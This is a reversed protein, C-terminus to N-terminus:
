LTRRERIRPLIAGSELIITACLFAFLLGPLLRVKCLFVSRSQPSPDARCLLLTRKKDSIPPWYPAVRGRTDSLIHDHIFSGTLPLGRKKQISLGIIGRFPAFLMALKRLVTQCESACKDSCKMVLVVCYQKSILGCLISITIECWVGNM